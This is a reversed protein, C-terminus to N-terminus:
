GNEIDDIFSMIDEKNGPHFWTVDSDRKFWTIQKKAYVRTNKKIKEIAEGLTYIGDFYAFIEKYGVTNLSNLYRKEYLQRAEEVLGNRIMDDVRSNIMDFLEDRERNLGIKHIIFPREKVTNTRFSSYPRGTQRCLEIAHIVRKYNRRDVREYHESDSKKLEELLPDLGDRNYEDWLKSRIEPLIAPMEDIGKCVADIYMMSGGCLLVNPKKKHLNSIIDLAEEEYMGANYYDSLEKTGIFYHKIRSLEEETPAATGIIIDKYIQRSDASIVPSKLRTAIDFSLSTKGVGTPGLLVFLRKM